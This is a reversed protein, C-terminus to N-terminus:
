GYIQIEPLEQDSLKSNIWALLAKLQHSEEQLALMVKLGERIMGEEEIHNNAFSRILRDIFEINNLGQYHRLLELYLKKFGLALLEQYPLSWIYDKCGFLPTRYTYYMHELRLILQRSYKEQIMSDILKYEELDSLGPGALLIYGSNMMDIYPNCPLESLVKKIRHITIYLNNLARSEEMDPWFLEILCWKSVYSGQHLLLYAFVEESKQTPWKVMKGNIDMIEFCGLCSIPPLLAKTDYGASVAPVMRDYKKLRLLVRNIDEETIPKLLYDLAEIEFAEVAYQSYATLFVVHLDKKVSQMRRALTIGNMRPMEIDVFIIDPLKAAFEELAIEPVEYAGIVDIDGCALVLRKIYNLINREDEIIFARYM